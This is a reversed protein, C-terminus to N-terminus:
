RSWQLEETLGPDEDTSPSAGNGGEVTGGESREWAAEDGSAGSAGSAGAAGSAGTGGRARDLQRLIELLQQTQRERQAGERQKAHVNVATAGIIVLGLGTLGGSVLYPLQLAVSELAAVRGWTFAILAFGAATVGVGGYLLVPGAPRM